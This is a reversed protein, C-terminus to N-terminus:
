GCVDRFLRLFNGGIIKEITSWPYNRRRLAESLVQMREPGNLEMAMLHQALRESGPLGWNRRVWANFGAIQETAPTPDGLLATDSGFSVHDVGAIDVAHDIHAV